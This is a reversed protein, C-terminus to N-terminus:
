FLSFLEFKLIFKFSDLYHLCVSVYMLGSKLRAHALFVAEKEFDYQEFFHDADNWVYPVGDFQFSVVKMERDRETSAERM